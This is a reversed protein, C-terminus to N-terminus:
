KDNLRENSQAVPIPQVMRELEKVRNSLESILQQAEEMEGQLRGVAQDIIWVRDSM